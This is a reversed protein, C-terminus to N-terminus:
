RGRLIASSQRKFQAPEIIAAVGLFCASIERGPQQAPLFLIRAETRPDFLVNLFGQGEVSQRSLVVFMEFAGIHKLPEILLDLAAGMDNADKGVLLTGQPENSSEGDLDVLVPDFGM